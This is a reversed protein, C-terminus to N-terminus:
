GESKLKYETQIKEEIYLIYINYLISISDQICFADGRRRGEVLVTLVLYQIVNISKLTYFIFHENKKIKTENSKFAIM